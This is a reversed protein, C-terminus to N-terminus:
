SFDAVIDRTQQDYKAILALLEDESSKGEELRDLMRETLTSLTVLAYTFRKNYEFGDGQSSPMHAGRKLVLHTVMVNYYAKLSEAGTDPASLDISM